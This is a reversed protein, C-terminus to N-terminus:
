YIFAQRVTPAFPVTETGVRAAYVFSINVSLEFYLYTLFMHDSFEYRGEISNMSEGWKRIYHFNGGFFLTSM